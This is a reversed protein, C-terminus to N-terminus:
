ANDSGPLSVTHGIKDDIFFDTQSKENVQVDM